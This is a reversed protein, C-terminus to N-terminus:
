GNHEFDAVDPAEFFDPVVPRIPAANFAPSHGVVFLLAFVVCFVAVPIKGPGINFGCVMTWCPNRDSM